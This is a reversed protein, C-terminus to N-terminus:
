KSSDPEENAADLAFLARVAELYVLGEEREAERRLATMPVHLIKNVISRTLADVSEHEAEALGLKARTRAVEKSRISELRERLQSITPAVRLAMFWGELRQREEAVIAEGLKTERRRKEANEDAIEGLDDVDYLFVNDHEDLEPEVNRPVGLDIVFLPRNSRAKLVSSLGESTLIPKEAGICSLVLDARSILEGIEDLGHASASFKEALEEARSVTRNAVAISKLGEGRLSRLAMEVMEGAGILIAHKDGLDEFIQKALDVAVRAVSIPREAIRTDTRVRKATAFATQYLRSLVPGAVGCEVADAYASKAQGLIQPEGVVMSDLSSAVRLLHGMADGDVFEYLYDAINAQADDGALDHRFFNELRLRAEGLSRTVIIVETRNCTSLLVAEEIEQSAVLKQLVPAVDDVVAYRERVEIPASRHNMGVLVVKMRLAGCGRGRIVSVRIRMGCEGGGQASGTFFKGHAADLWLMGSVVGLTILPFGVALASRNVRDLAELTPLQSRGARSRKAKLRRHELLFLMGALGAVGLLALGSGALLVHAHPWSGSGLTTAPVQDPIRLAAFFVALFAVPAVLVSLAALRARYLLVISFVVAIWAMFSIAVPTDTLPVPPVANHLQLFALGHSIAGACLLGISVRLLNKMPLALGLGAILGAALYLAATIQHLQIVL